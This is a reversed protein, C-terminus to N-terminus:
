TVPLSKHRRTGPLLGCIGLILTVAPLVLVSLFCVLGIHMAQRQVEPSSLDPHPPLHSFQVAFVGAVVFGVLLSFVSWLIIAIVKKMFTDQPRVVLLQAVGGTVEALRFDSAFVALRLRRQSWRQTLGM